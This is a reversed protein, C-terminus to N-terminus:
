RMTTEVLPHPFKRHGCTPSDQIVTSVYDPAGCLMDGPVPKGIGRATTSEEFARRLTDANWTRAAHAAYELMQGVIARRIEPNSGRKVEVLTPEADQDVILTMLRGDLRRM